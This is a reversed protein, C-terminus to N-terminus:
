LGSVLIALKFPPHNIPSNPLCLQSALAGALAAGLSLTSYSYYVCTLLPWHHRFRGRMAGLPLPIEGQSFGLVVDFMEKELAEKLVSWTEDLGEYRKKDKEGPIEKAFWWARPREEESVASGDANATSDYQVLSGDPLNVSHVVHPPELFTFSVNSSCAKRIASLRGKFISASQTYGSHDPM